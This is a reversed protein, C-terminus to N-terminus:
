HGVMAIRTSVMSHNCPHSIRAGHKRIYRWQSGEASVLAAGSLAFDTCPLAALIGTFYTSPFAKYNWHLLDFGRQLDIRVVEYGREMYPQSWNGTYDFLSLIAGKETYPM